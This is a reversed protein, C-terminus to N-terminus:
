RILAEALTKSLPCRSMIELWLWQGNPNLELFTYHGDHKVLFDFVGFELGYHRLMERCFQQVSEPLAVETYPVSFDYRRFDIKSRESAQSHIAVGLAEEGFGVVRVEHAKDIYKQFLHPSQEILSCHKLHEETVLNTLVTYNVGDRKVVAGKQLKYCVQDHADYFDHISSPDNTILTPPIEIDPCVDRQIKKAVRTQDLKNRAHINYQPRNVVKGRHCMMIGVLADKTEHNVIAELELDVGKDLKTDIIRRNWINWTEDIYVREGTQKNLFTTVEKESDFDLYFHTKIEDTYVEYSRAGMDQLHQIVAHVHPDERYSFILINKM